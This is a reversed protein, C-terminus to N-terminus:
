TTSPDATADIVLLTLDDELSLPPRQGIWRGLEALLGDCFSEADSAESEVAFASLRAEGFMEDDADLAELLGDTFLVLRDGDGITTREEEFHADGFRGLIPGQGGVEEAARRSTRLLLPPPHGANAVVLAGVQRDVWAYTATVFGSPLSGVLTRNMRALFEAPRQASELNSSAAVKVMSALLAAPVGHGSVDALLIGLAGPQPALFDYLDGAVASSPSFRIAVSISGLDAPPEGLLSSQIKRATELESELATLRRERAFFRRATIVGLLGVFIVFGISEENWTWPLANMSVLNANIVFAALPVFAALLIKQDGTMRGRHGLLVITVVVLGALVLINNPAGSLTGPRGQVLDSAIGVVAFVSLVALWWPLISRWGPGLLRWFFLWSPVNIVYTITTVIWAVTLGDVGLRPMLESVAFQRAGYLLAFAGFAALLPDLRRYRVLSLALALLGLAGLLSGV